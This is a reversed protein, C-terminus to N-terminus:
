NGGRQPPQNPPQNPPQPQANPPLPQGTNPDVAQGPQVSPAPTPPEKPQERGLYDFVAAEDGLASLLDDAGKFDRGQIREIEAIADKIPLGAEMLIAIATELSIAPRAGGPPLLLKVVLDVAAAVDQPLYSGFAVRGVLDPTQPVNDGGAALALRHAFKLLLPYKEDRVLRMEKVMTELPGFSLALAVGSPVSSADVRGLVAEPIRASTSLRKLLFEVYKIIADLAKSTDLVDMKGEGVELVMGPRYELQKGGMTSKQLALVPKGATASASQLDTDASALDDLIQLVTAISSRGYHELLSVTNPIHIVPIFDIGLDRRNVPGDDDVAYVAESQALDNVNSRTVDLTWTADTLYCTRDTPEENWPLNRAITYGDALVSDGEFQVQEVVTGDPLEAGIPAIRGMEWTIRRIKKKGPALYPDEEIEWAIHVKEPFDDDNGDDLVPFYFGPDWVRLRVRKKSASWGLTYVGDGLGVSRRETELMKLGLREDDAWGRLWDQLQWAAKAETASTTDGGSKDPHNPDYEDAGDVTIVQDDGLLAALITNVILAADGYERRGEIKDRETAVFFERAANDQYARLLTYAQLRRQHAGVWTPAEWGWGAGPQRRGGLARKFALPTWADFILEDAM